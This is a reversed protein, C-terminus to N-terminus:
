HAPSESVGLSSHRHEQTVRLADCQGCKTAGSDLFRPLCTCPLNHKTCSCEGPPLRLLQLAAQVKSVPVEAHPQGWGFSLNNLRETMDSEQSGRSWLGGPEETRPIRWALISSHTAMGKELPNCASEKGDSGGPFGSSFPYAKRIRVFPGTAAESMGDKQACPLCVVGM